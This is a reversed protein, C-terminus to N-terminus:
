FVFFRFSPFFHSFCSLVRQLADKTETWKNRDSESTTTVHYYYCNMGPNGCVLVTVLAISTIFVSCLVDARVGLWRSTAAVMSFAQNHLDQHRLTFGYTSRYIIKVHNYYNVSM